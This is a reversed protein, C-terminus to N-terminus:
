KSLRDMAEKCSADAQSKALQDFESITRRSNESLSAIPVTGKDNSQSGGIPMQTVYDFQLDDSDQSLTRRISQLTRQPSIVAQNIKIPNPKPLIARIEETLSIAKILQAPVLPKGGPSILQQLIPHLSNKVRQDFSYSFNYSGMMPPGSGANITWEGALKGEPPCTAPSDMSPQVPPQQSPAPTTRPPPNAQAIPTPIAAPVPKTTAPPVSSTSPLKSLNTPQEAPYQLTPPVQENGAIEPMKDLFVLSRLPTRYCAWISVALAIAIVCAWFPRKIKPWNRTKSRIPLKSYPHVLQTIPIPEIARNGQWILGAFGVFITLGAFVPSGLFQFFHPLLNYIDMAAEGEGFLDLARLLFPIIGWAVLVQFLSVLGPSPRPRPDRPELSPIHSM